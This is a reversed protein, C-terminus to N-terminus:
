QNHTFLLTQLQDFVFGLEAKMGHALGIVCVFVSRWIYMLMLM